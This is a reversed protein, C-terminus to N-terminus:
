NSAMCGVTSMGLYAGCVTLASNIMFSPLGYYESRFVVFGFSTGFAAAGLAYVTLLAAYPGARNEDLVTYLELLGICLWSLLALFCM